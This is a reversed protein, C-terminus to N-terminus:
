AGTRAQREVASELPEGAGSPASTETDLHSVVSKLEVLAAKMREKLVQAVGASSKMMIETLANSNEQCDEISNNIVDIQDWISAVPHSSGSSVLPSNFLKRSLQSALDVQWAVIDSLGDLQKKQAACLANVNKLHINLLDDFYNLINGAKNSVETM